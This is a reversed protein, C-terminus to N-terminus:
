EAQLFSLIQQQQDRTLATESMQLLRLVEAREDPTIDCRLFSFLQQKIQAEPADKFVDSIIENWLGKYGRGTPVGEAALMGLLGRRLIRSRSFERQLKTVM